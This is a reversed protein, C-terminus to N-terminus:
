PAQAAIVDFTGLMSHQAEEIFNGKSDSGCLETRSKQRWPAPADTVDFVGLM